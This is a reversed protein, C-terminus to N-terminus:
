RLRRRPRVDSSGKRGDGAAGRASDRVRRRLVVDDGGVITKAACVIRGRHGVVAGGGGGKWGRRRREGGRERGAEWAPRFVQAKTESSSICVGVGSDM